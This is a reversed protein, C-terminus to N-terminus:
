FIYMKIKTEYKVAVNDCFTSPKKEIKIFRPRRRFGVRTNFAASALTVFLYSSLM